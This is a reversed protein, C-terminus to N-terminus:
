RGLLYVAVLAVGGILALKSLNPLESAGASGSGLNMPGTSVDGGGIGGSKSSASGGTFSPMGGMVGMPNMGGGGEFLGKLFGGGGGVNKPGPYASAVM